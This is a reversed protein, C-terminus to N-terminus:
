IGLIRRDALVFPVAECPWPFTTDYLGRRRQSTSHWLTVQVGAVGLVQGGHHTRRVQSPALDIATWKTLSASRLDRPSIADYLAADCQAPAVGFPSRYLLSVMSRYTPVQGGHHTRRVQSSALDIATRKTLSATQLARPSITDYLAADGQAPAVGFPSRYAPSVMSRYASSRDAM